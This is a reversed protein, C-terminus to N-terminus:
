EPRRGAGVEAAGTGADGPHLRGGGWVWGAKAGLVVVLLCVAHQADKFYHGGQWMDSGASFVKAGECWQVAGGAATLVAWGGLTWM